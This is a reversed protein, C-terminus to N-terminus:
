KSRAETPGIPPARRALGGHLDLCRGVWPHLPDDAALLRLPSTMRSWQFVGFVIYDAYLPAAGGLFPADALVLRLPQLATRFAALHTEREAHAAELPKGLRKERSERFYPQDAPDLHTYIDFVIMRFVPAVLSLVCWQQLFWALRKAADGGFLTPAGPYHRELHEAIRWSDAVLREGDALVPVTKQGPGIAAIDCFRTPRSEWQLGKHALALATRWCNPSFCRGDAAALDYLVLAM